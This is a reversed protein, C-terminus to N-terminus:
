MAGELGDRGIEGNPLRPFWPERPDSVQELDRLKNIALSLFAFGSHTSVCM